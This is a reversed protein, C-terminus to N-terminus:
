VLDRGTNQTVKVSELKGFVSSAQKIFAAMDPSLKQIKAWAERKQEPTSKSNIEIAM